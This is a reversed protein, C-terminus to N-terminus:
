GFNHPGDRRYIALPISTQDMFVLEGDNSMKLRTATGVGFGGPRDCIVEPSPVCAIDTGDGSGWRIRGEKFAWYRAYTNVGDNWAAVYRGRSNRIMTLDLVADKPPPKGNVSVITWHGLVKSRSPIWFTSSFGPDIEYAPTPTATPTPPSTGLHPSASKPSNSSCGALVLGLVLAACVRWM